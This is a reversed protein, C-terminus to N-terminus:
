CFGCPGGDPICSIIRNRSDFELTCCDRLMAKLHARGRQIRSKAGSLSIEEAEAIERQPKGEIDCLRVAMRYKEPLHEVLTALCRSVERRLAEEEGPEPSALWRPLAEHERRGRYHDIIANRAIRYLWGELKDSDRVKGLNNHIKLFVDQLIDESVGRDGVRREIFSLLKKHFEAWIRETEEM